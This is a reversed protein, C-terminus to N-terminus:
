EINKIKVNKNIDKMYMKSIKKYFDIELIDSKVILSSNKYILNDKMVLYKNAFSLALNDANAIHENYDIGVNNFFTTEYSENNFRANDSVIKIIEDNSLNITGVVREMLIINPNEQDVFGKTSEIIYINGKLDESVYKIKELTNSTEIKEQINPDYSKLSKNSLV